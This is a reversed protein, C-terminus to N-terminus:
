IGIKRYREQFQGHYILILKLSMNRFSQFDSSHQFDDMITELALKQVCEM